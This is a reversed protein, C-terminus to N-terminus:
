YVNLLVALVFERKVQKSFRTKKITKVALLKNKMSKRYDAFVRIEEISDKTAFQAALRLLEKASGSKQGKLNKWNRYFHKVTSKFDGGIVSVNEAHIRHEIYSETDYIIPYKGSCFFQYIFSDHMATFSPKGIRLLLETGPRNIVMTCGPFATRILSETLTYQFSLVIKNVAGNEENFTNLASYYLSPADYQELQKVAAELKKEHWIDDQDSFAAYDFEGNIDIGYLLAKFSENAGVNQAKELIINNYTKQYNEIISVTNDTSGDDRIKLLIDVGSQNLISDIQEKIYKEGNYTSMLVIVKPIAM